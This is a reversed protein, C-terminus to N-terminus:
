CSTMLLRDVVARRMQSVKEAVSASSFLPVLLLGDHHLLSLALKGYPSERFDRIAIEVAYHREIHTDKKDAARVAAELNQVSNRADREDIGHGTNTQCNQQIIGSM